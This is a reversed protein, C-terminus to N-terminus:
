SNFKDIIVQIAEANEQNENAISIIADATTTTMNNKIIIDDVGSANDASAATVQEVQDQISSVSDIFKTSTEDICGIATRIDTVAMGYENAMDAFEQFKSSVDGEM